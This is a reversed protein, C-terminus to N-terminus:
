QSIQEASDKRYSGHGNRLYRLRAQFWTDRPWSWYQPSQQDIFYVADNAKSQEFILQWSNM